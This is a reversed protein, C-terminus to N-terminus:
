YDLFNQAIYQQHAALKFANPRIKQIRKIVKDLAEGRELMIQAAVLGSRGSGGKCHIAISKQNELLRHIAPGATQWLEIFNFNPTQDDEIPLHFWSMGLSKVTNGIQSLSLGKLEDETMLTIVAKAGYGKLQQLASQLSINKTGPCPTLILKAASNEISLAFVPHLSM